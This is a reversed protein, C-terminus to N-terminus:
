SPFRTHIIDPNEQWEDKEVWMKKFTSLGALISGGLWTTYIREQPALIKIKMDKVALRQLEHLLRAPFNKTLTSGGSLVINGYLSKRLDM